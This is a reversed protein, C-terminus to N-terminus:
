NSGALALDIRSLLQARTFPKELYGLQESLDDGRRPYGSMLVVRLGPQRDTLRRALEIGTMGPMVVDSLLLEVDSTDLGLADEPSATYRVDYGADQLLRVVVRRVADEDEVVLVTTRRADAAPAEQTAARRQGTPPALPLVIRVRTGSGSGNEIVVGGGARQVVRYVIALGLGTGKGPDKTTFFPDFAHTRVGDSMGSGTDELVLQVAPGSRMGLRSAELEDLDVRRTRVRLEGGYPMADRANVALNMVVQDLQGPDLPVPVERGDLDLVLTVDEGLTRSLLAVMSTVQENLDVTEEAEASPRAFALLQRTLGTAREASERIAEASGATGSLRDLAECEGLIVMLLNNFDHAVGGALRGLSDMKEAQLLQAESDRLASVLALRESVDIGISVFRLAGDATRFARGSNDFHRWAGNRHRLRHVSHAIGGGRLADVLGDRSAELDDPHILDAPSGGIIEDPHIGLLEHFSPSAYLYNGATDFESILVPAQEAFARFRDSLEGLKAERVVRDPVGTLMATAVELLGVLQPSLSEGTALWLELNGAGAAEPGVRVPPGEAEPGWVVRAPLARTAVEGLELVLRRADVCRGIAELTTDLARPMELLDAALLIPVADSLVTALRATDTTAQRADRAM